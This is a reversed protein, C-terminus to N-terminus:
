ECLIKFYSNVGSEVQFRDVSKAANDGIHYRLNASKMLMTLKSALEDDSGVTFLYGNQGEVILEKPGTSCNSSICPLGLAMAQVLAGPMGEHRSCMVFIDTSALRELVDLHFGNFQIIQNLGFDGCMEKLDSELPGSGYINVVYQLNDPLKTLARLLTPYDKQHVLRGILSINLKQEGNLARMEKARTKILEFTPTIVPNDVVRIRSADLGLTQVMQSAIEESVCTVRWASKYLWAKLANRIFQVGPGKRYLTLSNRESAIIKPNRYIFKSAFLVSVSAGGCTVYYFNYDSDKLYKRVAIGFMRLSSSKTELISVDKPIQSVYEGEKRMLLLDCTYLSRDFYQLLLLTVKDAGGQGLTPRIFLIKKLSGM